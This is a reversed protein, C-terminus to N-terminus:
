ASGRFDPLDKPPQRLPEPIGDRNRRSKRLYFFATGGALLCLLGAGALLWPNRARRPRHRPDYLFGEPTAGQAMMGLEAYTEAIHRWRGPNMSGIEVVEAGVLAATQRAEFRLHERTYRTSYRALILDVLEEPHAMAYSWGRLSADRFAMAREPHSALEKETTFLNDGYFDIGVSRPDLSIYSVAQHELFDPEHTVYASQADVRGFVLDWPDLSHSSLTIRDLPVGEKKLFAFIEDAQPEIALRKGVLDRVHRIGAQPRALIVLPSHQFIVALVVVPKGAMRLRILSSTGVGYQAKGQLVREVPDIGPLAEQFRVDLGTERYYGKEQAAYYGAFQFAHSWKLQVTIPDLSPRRSGAEQGCLCGAGLLALLSVLSRVKMEAGLICPM